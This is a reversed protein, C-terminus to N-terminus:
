WVEALWTSKNVIPVVSARGLAMILAVIGDIKDPCESKDPKISGAPDVEAVTNAAMWRLVPNGGHTIEKRLIMELLLKMPANFSQFGQGMPVMEFGDGNLQTVIQTANWRDYAIQKIDFDESAKNILARIHEYDIVNGPTLNFLGDRHWTDYPVHDRNSRDAIADKPLFFHPIVRWLKDTGHPPFLLVFASIDTTTSLDLGGFCPRGKLLSRDYPQSCEDWKDMPMWRVNSETWINCRLRLFANYESPIQRAQNAAEALTSYEIAIGLNPNAKIWNNPDFPDDGEDLSCIFPYYSDDEILGNLINECYTRQEYCVSHRDSGATTIALVASSPKKGLATKCVNWLERKVLQHFEDIVILNPRLGDLSKDESALPQYTTATNDESIASTYFNLQSLQPNPSNKCMLVSDAWVLKAQEKKTAVSYVAAGQTGEGKLIYLAIAGAIKSKGNGRALEAYIYRFRRTCDKRKWGFLMWLFAQQWPELRLRDGFKVSISDETIPCSRSIWSIAHLAADPNFVIGRKHGNKLDDAHRQIQKKVWSSVVQEGSLVSEIYAEATTQRQPPTSTPKL